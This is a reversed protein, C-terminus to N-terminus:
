DSKKLEALQGIIDLQGNDKSKKQEVNNNIASRIYGQVNDRSNRLASDKFQELLDLGKSTGHINFFDKMLERNKGNFNIGENNLFEIASKDLDWRASVNQTLESKKLDDNETHFVHIRFGTISRGRKVDEYNFTLDTFDSEDLEKKASDLVRKKFDKTAPYKDETNTIFRLEEIDIQFTPKNRWKCILDYINSSYLTKLELSTKLHKLSYGKSMDCLFQYATLSIRVEFFEDRHNIEAYEILGTFIETREPTVIDVDTKRLKKVAAKLRNYNQPNPEIDSLRYIYYISENSGMTPEKYEKTHVGASTGYVKNFEGKLHPSLSDIFANILRKEYINKLNIKSLTVQNSQMVFKSERM